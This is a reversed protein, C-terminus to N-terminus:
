ACPLIVSERIMRYGKNDIIDALESNRAIIDSIKPPCNKEWGCSALLAPLTGQSIAYSLTEELITEFSQRAEIESNGYGMIDLAACYAYHLGDEEFLIISLEVSIGTGQKMSYVGIFRQAKM